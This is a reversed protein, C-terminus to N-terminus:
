RGAAQGPTGKCTERIRDIATEESAPEPAGLARAQARRRFNQHSASAATALAEDDLGRVKEAVCGCYANKDQVGLAGVDEAECRELIQTRVLRAACTATAARMRKVFADKTTLANEDGGNLDAAARGIEAPMCECNMKLMADIKEREFGQLTSLDQQRAYSCQQAVHRQMGAVADAVPRIEQAGANGAIVMAIAAAMRFARHM